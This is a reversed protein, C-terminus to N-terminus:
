EQEETAYGGRRLVRPKGDGETGTEEARQRGNDAAGREVSGDPLRGPVAGCDGGAHVAQDGGCDGEPDTEPRSEM